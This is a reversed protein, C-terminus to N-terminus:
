TAQAPSASPEAVEGHDPDDLGGLEVVRDGLEDRGPEGGPARAAPEVFERVHVAV